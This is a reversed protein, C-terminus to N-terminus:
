FSKVNEEKVGEKMYGSTCQQASAWMAAEQNGTHGVWLQLAFGQQQREKM